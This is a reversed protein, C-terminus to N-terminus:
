KKKKGKRGKKGKKKKKPKHKRMAKKIDSALEASIHESIECVYIHKGSRICELFRKAAKKCNSGSDFLGNHKLKYVGLSSNKIMVECIKDIVPVDDCEGFQNDALNIKELMDQAELARFIQHVGENKLFNGSNIRYWGTETEGLKHPPKGFDGPYLGLRGLRHRLLM